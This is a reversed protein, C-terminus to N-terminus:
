RAGPAMRDAVGPEGAAGRAVAERIVSLPPARPGPVRAIGALWATLAVLPWSITVGDRPRRDTPRHRDPPPFRAPAGAPRRHRSRATVRAADEPGSLREPPRAAIPAPRPHMGPGWSSSPVPIAVPFLIVGQALVFLWAWQEARPARPRLLRVCAAVALAAVALGFSARLLGVVIWEPAATM